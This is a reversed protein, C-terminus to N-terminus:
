MQVCLICMGEMSTNLVHIYMHVSVRRQAWVNEWEPMCEYVNMFMHTNGSVGMCTCLVHIHIGESTSKYM